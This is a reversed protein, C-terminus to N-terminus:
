SRVSPAFCSFQDSIVSSVQVGLRFCDETIRHGQCLLVVRQCLVIVTVFCKLLFLVILQLASKILEGVIYGLQPPYLDHRVVPIGRSIYGLGTSEVVLLHLSWFLLKHNEV